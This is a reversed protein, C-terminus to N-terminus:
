RVDASNPSTKKKKKKKAKFMPTYNITSFNMRKKKSVIFRGIFIEEANHM